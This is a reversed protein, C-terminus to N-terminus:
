SRLSAAQATQAAAAGQCCNKTLFGLLEGMRDYGARYIVNRGLPEQTVLGAAALEKLHFSLNTPGVGVAEALAKQSMGGHGAVVLQRFAKLRVPHAIAALAVVALTTDMSEVM